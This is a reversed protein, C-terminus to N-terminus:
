KFVGLNIISDALNWLGLITIFFLFVFFKFNGYKNFIKFFAYIDILVFFVATLFHFLQLKTM